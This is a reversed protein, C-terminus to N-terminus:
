WIGKEDVGTNSAVEKEEKVRLTSFDSILECIVLM